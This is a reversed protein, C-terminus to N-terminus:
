DAPLSTTQELVSTTHELVLTTFPPLVLSVSCPRGHLPESSAWVGGANGTNSGGYRESDTNLREAYFGEAPVGIRYGRRTVPTFNCVVIALGDNATGGRIYSVVCQDSDNSDIWAFGSEECDGEHLAPTKVYLANLDCILLQVGKHLPDDLLHWDLSSEHNWERDQAFENGMFMLKKGPQTYLFGYYLRLNAFKDWRNGPMRGLIPGKGGVVLDHSLALVYNEQFAYVPGHTLEDHYYRKHIPVRAMYRLTEHLWVENWKFGFGLGGVFTPRSVMPWGTAEEAITFAGLEEAYVVENLRRLFDIAELNEHGGFRNRSWQGPGRAHDLYLISALGHIRLGDIHYFDMWFLANSLLYNCVAPSGYNYMLTDWQPHRQQRPDPHEYLPTGDFQVPAQPDDPFQVPVWNLIVGIGEQHCRDVLRRFDDPTGFRGTPAYLAIPQYGLSGDFNFESLPLFEVHTFGLEKVYAPLEEALEAYTLCRAGEEPKRRWSGLHVEFIALPAHLADRKRRAQMWTRDGWRYAKPDSVISASGPWREAQFAYPDTRAFPMGGPVTKVEYKYFQGARAGPVFLEWVGCGHRFRMGHRRGDWGNFDGIVSVRHANPAWVVFSVGSVGDLTGPHAGLKEYSRLHAGQALLEEDNASLILPLRYADDLEEQGADTIIRFRYAFPKDRGVIAGAFLGADHMKDLNVIVSGDVADIVAAERADPLFARVVFVGDATLAHMGLFGCPDRHDAAIIANIDEEGALPPLPVAAPPDATAAEPAPAKAAEPSSQPTDTSPPVFRRDASAPPTAQAEGAAPLSAREAPLREARAAAKAPSPTRKESQKDPAPESSADTAKASQKPSGGAPAHADRSTAKDKARPQTPSVTTESMAPQAGTERGRRESKEGNRASSVTAQRGRERAIRQGRGPQHRIPRHGMRPMAKVKVRRATM